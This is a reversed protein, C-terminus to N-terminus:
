RMRLLKLCVRKIKRKWNMVKLRKCEQELHKWYVHKLASRMNERISTDKEKKFYMDYIRITLYMRDWVMAYYQQQSYENWMHFEKLFNKLSDFLMMQLEFLNEKYSHVLSGEERQRYYYLPCEVVKYCTPVYKFYQLNFSTDEGWNLDKDFRIQNKRIINANYLIDCPSNVYNLRYLDMFYLRDYVKVRCRWDDIYTTNIDDFEMTLNCFLVSDEDQAQMYIDVMEPHIMDDSDVFVVYDGAAMDLGSNRAASVGANEKHLVKIRSDKGAYCDCIAGSSDTSGDDVLIIELYKYTQSVISDLCDELYPEVNYVPVIISVLKDQKIM